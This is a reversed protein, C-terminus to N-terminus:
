HMKNEILAHNYNQIFAKLKKDMDTAINKNTLIIDNEMTSDSTFKYLSNGSFDMNFAYDDSILEYSQNIFNIAFGKSNEDFISEGFAFYSDPYGVYDMISPLIDIHQTTRNNKGTLGSDGACYYLVPVSYLGVRSQYFDSGSLATHDATIVFLTNKFWPMKSATEFFKRLSYDAYGISRHIPLTGAPFTNEFGDPIKYPHHSTLTFVTALFPEKMNNVETATRQLFPEDYIGWNGDFDNDNGYESRGFYKDYGALKSFNDFGMTGNTGGHFFVSNYGKTKLLTAVSTITNGSYVSTIFPEDMLAPIGAVIAPIGEISRKGNAYANTFTLSKNILSDLFPTYGKNNNLSGIYEKGFSEMIIIMVNKKEFPKASSHKIVPMLHIANEESMFNKEEIFQKGFTKIVTFPTNLILASTKGSNYKSASLINLPKYQLGGRFGVFTLFGFILVVV